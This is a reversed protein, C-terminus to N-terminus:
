WVASMNFFVTRFLGTQGNDCVRRYVGSDQDDDDIDQYHGYLVITRSDERRAYSIVVQKSSSFASDGGGNVLVRDNNSSLAPALWDYMEDEDTNNTGHRNATIHYGKSASIKESHVEDLYAHEVRRNSSGINGDVYLNRWSTSPTGLDDQNHQNPILGKGGFCLYGQDQTM